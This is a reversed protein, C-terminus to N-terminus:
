PFYHKKRINWIENKKAGKAKKKNVQAFPQSFVLAALANEEIQKPTAQQGTILFAGGKQLQLSHILTAAAAREDV